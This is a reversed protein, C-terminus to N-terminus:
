SPITMSVATLGQPVEELAEMFTDRDPIHRYSIYKVDGLRNTIKIIRAWSKDPLQTKESFALRLEPNRRAVSLCLESFFFDQMFLESFVDRTYYKLPSFRFDPVKAHALSKITEELLQSCPDMRFAISHDTSSQHLVEYFSGLWDLDDRHMFRFGVLEDPCQAGMIRMLNELSSSCIFTTIDPGSYNSPGIHFSYLSEPIPIGDFRHIFHIDTIMLKM